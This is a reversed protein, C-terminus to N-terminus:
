CLGPREGIGHAEAPDTCFLCEHQRDAGEQLGRLGARGKFM